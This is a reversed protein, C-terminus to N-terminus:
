TTWIGRVTLAARQPALRLCEAMVPASDPRVRWAGRRRLQGCSYAALWCSASRAASPSVCIASGLCVRQRTSAAPLWREDVVLNTTSPVAPHKEKQRRRCPRIRSRVSSQRSGQRSLLATHGSAVAASSASKPAPQVQLRLRAITRPAPSRSPRLATLLRRLGPIPM